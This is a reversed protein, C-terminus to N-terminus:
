LRIAGQITIIVQSILSLIHTEMRNFEDFVVWAGSSALGKFFRSVGALEYNASCNM